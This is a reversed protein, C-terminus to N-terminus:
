YRTLFNEILKIKKNNRHEEDIKEGLHVEDVIYDVAVLGCFITFIEKM